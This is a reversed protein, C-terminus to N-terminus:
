IIIKQISQLHTDFILIGEDVDNLQAILEGKNNWISSQGACAQHDCEGVYNSMLVPVSYRAATESLQTIAREIGGAFKAVSVVYCQAGHAFVDEVHNPVALEYCIAFGIKMDNISRTAFNQGKVFFPDEDPHLYKKSYVLWPQRPQFLIMSICVGENCKTPMGVGITIQSNNSFDQFDNLIINHQDMALKKALSPEYGTLSLEPFIIVDAGNHIAEMIMKKHCAINAGIDGRVPKTQVVSIKLPRPCKM